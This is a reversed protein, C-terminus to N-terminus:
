ASATAKQHQQHLDAYDAEDWQSTGEMDDSLFPEEYPYDDEKSRKMVLILEEGAMLKYQNARRDVGMYRYVVGSHSSTVRGDANVTISYGVTRLMAALRQKDDRELTWLKGMENWHHGAPAVITSRLIVLANEAAERANQAEKLKTALEPMFGVAEVTQLLSAVKRSLEQLEAERTVIEKDNEGM